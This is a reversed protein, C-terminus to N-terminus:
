KYRPLFPQDTLSYTAIPGYSKGTEALSQLFYQQWQKPENIIYEKVDAVTMGYRSRDPYKAIVQIEDTLKEINM